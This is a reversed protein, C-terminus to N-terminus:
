SALVARLASEDGEIRASKRIDEFPLAGAALGLTTLADAHLVADLERGAHHEVTIDSPSAHVQIVQNDIAFGVRVTRRSAWRPRLLAPLAVMLWELQFEDDGQGPIMLPESWRILGDIPGRLQAGWETLGYVVANADAAPRREIVGASELDRLRASLLNTAMGPLGDLLEGYRAPAVLLQRVILLNWRDGVVDLARALGCFQRYSRASL